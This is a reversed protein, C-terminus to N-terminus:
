AQDPPSATAQGFFSGSLREIMEAAERVGLEGVDLLCHATESYAGQRQQQLLTLQQVPDPCDLLPRNCAHATRQVLVSVPAHLWVVFGLNRLLQRNENKVVIGGGTSIIYPAAPKESCLYNLLATELRRFHAEGHLHFIEPIPMGTQEEIVADTDLLAHGTRRSLERGITSKGCGMLGILVTHRLSSTLGPEM